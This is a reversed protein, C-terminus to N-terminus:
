WDFVADPLVEDLRAAPALMTGRSEVRSRYEGLNWDATGLALVRDGSSPGDRAAHRRRCISM